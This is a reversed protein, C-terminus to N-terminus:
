SLLGESQVVVVFCLGPDVGGGFRVLSLPGAGLSCLLRLM